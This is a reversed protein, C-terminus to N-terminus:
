VWVRTAAGAPAGARLEELPRPRGLHYGQGYNIGLERVADLETATEIGEAVIQAGTEAAFSALAAALSRRVPDGDIGSTLQRDLKIFDPALKLIHTLSAWGAGTDDVAVRIGAGRLERLMECLAQYDDVAEQETLELMLRHPDARLLRHAMLPSALATPSVNLSLVQGCPLEDLHSLARDLLAHELEPGLSARFARAIWVDPPAAPSASIRALSEVGFVSGDRLDFIEQFALAFAREDLLRRVRAQETAESSGLPDLVSSVFTEAASGIMPPATALRATVRRFQLASYIAASMFDALESLLAVDRPGFAAPAHSSVNLVGLRLDGQLLPVCVSSRVGFARTAGRNVREDTETDHAVLTRGSRIAQGSMSGDLVLREGVFRTMTGAGCVYRLARDGAMLGVLAGEAPAVLALVGDAVRQAVELPDIARRIVESLDIGDAV